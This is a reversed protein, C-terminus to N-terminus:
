FPPEESDGTKRRRQKNDKESDQQQKSKRIVSINGQEMMKTEWEEMAAEYDEKAQAASEYYKAKEEESMEKWEKSVEAMKDTISGSAQKLKSGLFISYAHLPRKPRELKKLVQKYRRKAKNSKAQEEQEELMQEEEETLSARFNEMEELYTESNERAQSRYPEKEDDSLERWMKGIVKAIEPFSLHPNENIVQQRKEMSFLMFTGRPRKPKQPMDGQSALCRWVLRTSTNAIGGFLRNTRCCALMVRATQWSAAM